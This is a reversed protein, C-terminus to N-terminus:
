MHNLTLFVNQDVQQFVKYGRQAALQIADGERRGPNDEVMMYQPWMDKPVDDFFQRLVRHEFGEIDLKIFKARRGQIISSLPVCAIKRTEPEAIHSQDYFSHGGANGTTNLLLTLTEHKDSVGVQHITVQDVSNLAVNHRLENANFAEAEISDVQGL